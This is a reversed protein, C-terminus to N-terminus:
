EWLRLHFLRPSAIWLCHRPGLLFEMFAAKERWRWNCNLFNHNSLCATNALPPNRQTTFIKTSFSRFANEYGPLVPLVLAARSLTMCCACAGGWICLMRESTMAQHTIQECCGTRVTRQVGSLNRTAPSECVQFFFSLFKWDGHLIFTLSVTLGFGWHFCVSTM